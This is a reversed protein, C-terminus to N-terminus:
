IRGAFALYIQAQRWFPIAHQDPDGIVPDPERSPGLLPDKLGETPGRVRASGADGPEAQPEVDAALDGYPVATAEPGVAGSLPLPSRQREPERSLRRSRSRRGIPSRLRTST